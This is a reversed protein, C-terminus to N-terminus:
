ELEGNAPIVMGDEFPITKDWEGSRCVYWQWDRQFIRIGPAYDNIRNKTTATEWGGSNLITDGNPLLTVIDTDHLRIAIAENDRKQLYTNNQLKRSYRKGLKTIAMEYTM